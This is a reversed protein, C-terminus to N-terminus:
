RHCGSCHTPPNLDRVRDPDEQYDYGAAMPEYSMNTVESRPRLHPEPDRHCNLCWGMSHPEEQRVVEMQDVQGHCSACGVGATVHVSHDFFAHQPLQHVRVWEIPQGSAWAERVPHLLPNQTGVSAHCNICTSTPPIAAHAAEEVTNHCYVCDM